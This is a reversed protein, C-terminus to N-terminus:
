IVVVKKIKNTEIEKLGDKIIDELDKITNKDFYPQINIFKVIFYRDFKKVPLIMISILQLSASIESLLEFEKINKFIKSEIKSIMNHNFM